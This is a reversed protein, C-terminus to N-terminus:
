SGVYRFRTQLGQGARQELGQSINKIHRQLLQDYSYQSANDIRQRVIQRYDSGEKVPNKDFDNFSTANAILLVVENDSM